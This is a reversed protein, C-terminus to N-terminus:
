STWRATVASIAAVVADDGLGTAPRGSEPGLLVLDTVASPGAILYRWAHPTGAVAAAAPPDLARGTRWLEGGVVPLGAWAPLSPLAEAAQRVSLVARENRGLVSVGTQRILLDSAPVISAGRDSDTFRFTALLADIGRADPAPGGFWTTAEHYPGVLALAADSRDPAEYLVADHGRMPVRRARAGRLLKRPIVRHEGVPALFFHRALRPGTFRTSGYWRLAGLAAPVTLDM